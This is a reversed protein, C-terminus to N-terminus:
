QHRLSPSREEASLSPHADWRSPRSNDEDGDDILDPPDADDRHVAPWHDDTM